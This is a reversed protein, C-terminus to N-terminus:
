RSLGKHMPQGAYVSKSTGAVLQSVYLNGTNKSALEAANTIPVGASYLMYFSRCFRSISLHYLPKRLLPILMLASDFLLRLTGQKPMKKVLLILGIIVGWFLILTTFCIWLYQDFSMGGAFMAPLQGVFVAIHFILVPFAFGGILRRRIKLQLEYWDALMKFTDPLNGSEEAAAVMTIDFPPFVSRKQAMAENLQSGQAVQNELFSFIKHLRGRYSQALTNLTRLIPLGADLMAALQYYAKDIHKVM